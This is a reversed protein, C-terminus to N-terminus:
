ENSAHHSDHNAPDLRHGTDQAHKLGVTPHESKYCDYLRWCALLEPLFSISLLWSTVKGHKKGAKWSGTYTSGAPYTYTGTGDFKDARFDGTYLAGDPMLMVGQGARKAGSWLGLHAGGAATSYLGMGERVDGAYSGFYSDGNPYPSYARSDQRRGESDM